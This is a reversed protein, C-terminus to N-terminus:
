MKKELLGSKKGDLKALLSMNNKIIKASMRNRTVELYDKMEDINKLTLLRQRLDKQHVAQKELYDIQNRLPMSANDIFSLNNMGESITEEFDKSSTSLASVNTQTIGRVINDINESELFKEYDVGGTDIVLSELQLYIYDVYELDKENELYLGASAEITEKIVRDHHMIEETSASMGPDHYVAKEKKKQQKIPGVSIKGMESVEDAINRLISIAKTSEELKTLNCPIVLKVFNNELLLQRLRDVKSDFDKKDSKLSFPFIKMKLSEKGGLERGINKGVKKLLRKILEAKYKMVKVIVPSSKSNRLVLDKNQSRAFDRAEGLSMNTMFKENEDYVSVITEKSMTIEENSPYHKSGIIDCLLKTTVREESQPIKEKSAKQYIEGTETNGIGLDDIGQTQKKIKKEVGAFDSNKMTILDEENETQKKRAFLFKQANIFSKRKLLNFQSQQVLSLRNSYKYLSSFTKLM